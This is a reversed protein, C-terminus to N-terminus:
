RAQHADAEKRRCMTQLPSEMNFLIPIDGEPRPYQESAKAHPGILQWYLERWESQSLTIPKKEGHCTLWVSTASNGHNDSISGIGQGAFFNGTGPLLPLAVTPRLSDHRITDTM